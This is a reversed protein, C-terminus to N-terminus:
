SSRLQKNVAQTKLLNHLWRSFTPHSTETFKVINRPDQHCFCRRVSKVCLNLQDLTLLSIDLYSLKTLLVAEGIVQLTPEDYRKAMTNFPAQDVKGQAVLRLMDEISLSYVAKIAFDRQSLPLANIFNKEIPYSTGPM